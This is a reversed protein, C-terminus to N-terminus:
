GCGVDALLCEGSRVDLSAVFAAVRPWPTHRTASFHPAIEDYVRAVHAREVGPEREDVGDDDDDVDTSIILNLLVFLVRVQHSIQQNRWRLWNRWNHLAIRWMRAFVSVCACVWGGVWGGV